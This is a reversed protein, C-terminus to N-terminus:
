LGDLASGWSSSFFADDTSLLWRWPIGADKWKSYHTLHGSGSVGLEALRLLRDNIWIASVDEGRLLKSKRVYLLLTYLLLTHSFLLLDKKCPEM